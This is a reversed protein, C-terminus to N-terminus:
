SIIEANDFGLEEGVWRACDDVSSFGDFSLIYGGEMIIEGGHGFLEDGEDFISVMEIENVNHRYMTMDFFDAATCDPQAIKEGFFNTRFPESM